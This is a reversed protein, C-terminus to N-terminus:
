SVSTPIFTVGREQTHIRREDRDDNDQKSTIFLKIVQEVLQLARLQYICQKHYQVFPSTTQAKPKSDKSELAEFNTQISNEHRHRIFSFIIRRHDQADWCWTWHSPRYVPHILARLVRTIENVQEAGTVLHEQWNPGCNIPNAYSRHVYQRYLM